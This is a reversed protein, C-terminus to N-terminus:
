SPLMEKITQMVKSRDPLHGFLVDYGMVEVYLAYQMGATVILVIGKPHETAAREAISQGNKLGTERDTGKPSLKFDRRVIVGDQTVVYGISSRLNGTRDEYNGSLRAENVIEEGIRFLVQIFKQINKEAWAEIDKEIQKKDPHKIITTM